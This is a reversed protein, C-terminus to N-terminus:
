TSGKAKTTELKAEREKEELYREVLQAFRKDLQDGLVKSAVEEAIKHLDQHHECAEKRMEELTSRRTLEAQIIGLFVKLSMLVMLLAMYSVSHNPNPLKEITAVGVVGIAVMLLSALVMLTIMRNQKRFPM